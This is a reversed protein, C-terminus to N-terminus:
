VTHNKRSNDLIVHVGILILSTITQKVKVTLWVCKVFKLIELILPAKYVQRSISAYFAILVTTVIINM